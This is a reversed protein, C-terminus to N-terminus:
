FNLLTFNNTDKDDNLETYYKVNVSSKKVCLSCLCIFCGCFFCMGLCLVIIFNLLQIFILLKYELLLNPCDDFHYLFSLFNIGGIFVHLINCQKKSHNKLSLYLVFRGENIKNGHTKSLTEFKNLTKFSVYTGFFINYIMSCILFAWSERCEKSHMFKYVYYSQLVGLGLYFLLFIVAFINSILLICKNSHM